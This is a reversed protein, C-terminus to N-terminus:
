VLVVLVLASATVSAIQGASLGFYLDDEPALAAFVAAGVLVLLGLPYIM